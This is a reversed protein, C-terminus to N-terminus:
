VRSSEEERISPIIYCFSPKSVDGDKSKSNNVPPKTLKQNRVAEERRPMINPKDTTKPTSTFFLNDDSADELDSSNLLSCSEDLNRDPQGHIEAKEETKANKRGIIPSPDWNTFELSTAYEEIETAEMVAFDGDHDDYFETLLKEDKRKKVELKNESNRIPNKYTQVTEESMKFNTKLNDILKGRAKKLQQINQEISKKKEEFIRIKKNLKGINLMTAKKAASAMKIQIYYTLFIEKTVTVTGPVTFICSLNNVFM